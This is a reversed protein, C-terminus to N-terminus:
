QFIGIEIVYHDKKTQKLIGKYLFRGYGRISLVANNNCLMSCDELPLHNVQVNGGQILAAAKSRSLNCAAAVIADLRISSVIKVSDKMKKEPEIKEECVRFQVQTRKIKTCSAIVYDAVESVVFVYIKNDDLFIDGFQDNRLGCNLLAGLCDRHSLTAYASAYTAKLLTIGDLAYPEDISLWARKKECASAGGFLTLVCRKGCVKKLVEQEQENLFPTVIERNRYVVADIQDDFRKALEEFGKFHKLWESNKAM